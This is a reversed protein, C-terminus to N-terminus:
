VLIKSFKSNPPFPSKLFMKGHCLNDELTSESTQLARHRLVKCINLFAELTFNQFIKLKPPLPIEFVDQWLM